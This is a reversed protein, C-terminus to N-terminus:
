LVQVATRLPSSDFDLGHERIHSTSVPDNGEQALYTEGPKDQVATAAHDGSSVILWRPRVTLDASSLPM